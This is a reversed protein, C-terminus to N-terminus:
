FCPASTTGSLRRRAGGGGTVDVESLNWVEVVIAETVRLPLASSPQGDTPWLSRGGARVPVVTQREDPRSEMVGWWSISIADNREAAILHEPLGAM